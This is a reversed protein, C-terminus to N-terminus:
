GFGGKKAGGRKQGLAGFVLCRPTKEAKLPKKELRVEGGTGPRFDRMCCRSRGGTAGPDGNRGPDGERKKEDRNLSGGDLLNIPVGNM